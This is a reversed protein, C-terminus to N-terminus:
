LDRVSALSKMSHRYYEEASKRVFAQELLAPNNFTYNLVNYIRDFNYEFDKNVMM